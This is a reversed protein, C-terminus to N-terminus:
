KEKEPLKISRGWAPINCYISVAIDTYVRRRKRLDAVKNSKATFNIEDDLNVDSTEKALGLATGKNCAYAGILKTVVVYLPPRNPFLTRAMIVPHFHIKAWLDWCQKHNLDDIFM